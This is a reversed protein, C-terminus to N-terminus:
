VGWCAHLRDGGLLAGVLCVQARGARGSAGRARALRSLSRFDVVDILACRALEVAGCAEGRAVSGGAAGMSRDGWAATGAPLACACPKSRAITAHWRGAVARALPLSIALRCRAACVARADPSPRTFRKALPRPLETRRPATEPAPPPACWLYKSTPHHHRPRRWVVFPAPSRRMSRWSARSSHLGESPLVQQLRPSPLSCRVALAPARPSARALRGKRAGLRDRTPPWGGVRWVRCCGLSRSGRLPQPHQPPNPYQQSARPDSSVAPAMGTEDPHHHHMIVRM